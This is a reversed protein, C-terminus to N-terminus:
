STLIEDALENLDDRSRPFHRALERGCGAV